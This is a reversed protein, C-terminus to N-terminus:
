QRIHMFEMKNAQHCSNCNNTLAAYNVALAASDKGAAARALGALPGELYQDFYLGAPKALKDNAIGLTRIKQTIEALEDVEYAAREYDASPISKGLEDHHYKLQIMFEGLGPKLQEIRIKLSDIEQRDGSGPARGCGQFLLSLICLSTLWGSRKM